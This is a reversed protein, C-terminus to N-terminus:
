QLVGARIARADSLVHAVCDALRTEACTGRSTGLPRASVTSFEVVYDVKMGRADQQWTLNTPITAVLTGPVGGSSLSFEPSNQFSSELADAFRVTLGDDGERWVEVKTAAVPAPANACAMLGIVSALIAPANRPMLPM